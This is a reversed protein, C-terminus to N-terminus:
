HHHPNFYFGASKRGRDSASPRLPARWALRRRERRIGFTYRRGDKSMRSDPDNGYLRAPDFARSFTDYDKRVRAAPTLFKHTKAFFVTDRM